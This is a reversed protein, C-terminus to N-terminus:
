PLAVALHFLFDGLLVRTKMFLANALGLLGGLGVPLFFLAMFLLEEDILQFESLRGLARHSESRSGDMAVAQRFDAAADGKRGMKEFILGRTELFGANLQLELARQADSLGLALSGKQLHSQARKDYAQANSPELVIVMDFDAIALVYQEKKRQAEGRELYALTYKPEIEIAKSLDAIGPEYNGSREREARAVRIKGLEYYAAANTPNVSIARSYSDVARNYAEDCEPDLESARGYDDAALHQDGSGSRAAGRHFYAQSQENASLTVTELLRTCAAVAPEREHSACQEADRKATATGSPDRAPASVDRNCPVASVTCRFNPLGFPRGFSSCNFEIKPLKSFDLYWEGHRARVERQWNAVAYKAAQRESFGAQGSAKIPESKCARSLASCTASFTLPLADRSAVRETNLIEGVYFWVLALCACLLLLVALSTVFKNRRSRRQLHTRARDATVIAVDRKRCAALYAQETPELARRLDDRAAVREADALRGGGHTLWAEENGNAAWDRAARRLGDFVSLAGVDEELWGQLLGWQRLLAEHAPEITTEGTATAVDTSLLRQEVLLDILPRAETPIESLRAVRRRPAGTEPDIGALWPILGRRLLTLRADRDRPIRSDADAAVFAREVAAEISGKVRGLQEYESLRLDGDGGHERYLRELTFALLPLADKAGGVEIDALLADILPEEIKLARKSGELRRAPGRIVEAYAGQPMPPLSLTHQRVGELEKAIQLREYNDSRITFVSILAPADQTILDRVLMM